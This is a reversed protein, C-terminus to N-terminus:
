NDMILQSLQQAITCNGTYPCTDFSCDVAILKGNETIVCVTRSGDATRCYGSFFSEKEM